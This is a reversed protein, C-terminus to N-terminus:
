PGIEKPPTEHDLDNNNGASVSIGEARELAAALRAIISATAPMSLFSHPAGSLREAERRAEAILAKTDTV